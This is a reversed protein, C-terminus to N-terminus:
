QQWFGSRVPQSQNLWLSGSSFQSYVKRNAAFIKTPDLLDGINQHGLYKIVKKQFLSVM